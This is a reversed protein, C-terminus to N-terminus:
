IVRSVLMLNRGDPAYRHLVAEAQFGLLAAWRYAAEFDPDVTTEIRVVGEAELAQLQREVRRHIALFDSALDDSLLSWAVARSPWPRITGGCALVRRGKRAAFAVGSLLSTTLEADNPDFAGLQAPQVAIDSLHARALPEFVLEGM